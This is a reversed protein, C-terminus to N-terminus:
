SYKVGLLHQAAGLAGGIGFRVFNDGTLSGIAYLSPVAECAFTIQDVDVPNHKADIPARLNMGLRPVLNDPLFGLEADAGIFIGGFSINMTEKQGDRNLISVSRDDEGFECIHAQPRCVYSEDVEKGQMLRYLHSYGPYTQQPIRDFVLHRNHPNQRFVHIVKLGKGLARLIADAASLGAGVVLVVSSSLSGTEEEGESRQWADVHRVFTPIHHTIFRSREGPVGLWRVHDSVGCALVLKESFVCVKKERDSTNNGRGGLKQSGRLYWRLACDRRGKSKSDDPCHIGCDDSDAFISCVDTLHEWESKSLICGRHSSNNLPSDPSTLSPPSSCSSCGSMSTVKSCEQTLTKDLSTVQKIEANDVFNEALGMRIVYDSYYRAVNGVLVQGTKVDSKTMHDIDNSQQKPEQREHELQEAMWDAFSYLPLDLWNGLSLSKLNPEMYQWSGGPVGRGIVVHPIAKHPDYKWILSSSDTGGVDANPRLLTDVLLAIPNSSRGELGASM